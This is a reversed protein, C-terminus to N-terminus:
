QDTYTRVLRFHLKSFKAADSRIDGTQLDVAFRQNVRTSDLSEGGQVQRQAREVNGYNYQNGALGGQVNTNSAWYWGSPAAPFLRADLGPTSASKDVLRRLEAARPLRWPVGEAKWRAQAHAQAQVYDLELPTGTCSRGNWQMGEVCRPWALKARTDVVLSGDASLALSPGPEAASQALAAVPAALGGLCALALLTCRPSPSHAFHTM